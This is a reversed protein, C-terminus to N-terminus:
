ECEVWIDNGNGQLYPGPEIGRGAAVAVWCTDNHFVLDDSFYRISQDWDEECNCDNGCSILFTTLALLVITRINIRIM